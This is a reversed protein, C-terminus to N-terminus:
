QGEQIPRISAMYYPELPVRHGDERSFRMGNSLVILTKTVRWVTVTHTMLQHSEYMVKDHPRLGQLWENNM